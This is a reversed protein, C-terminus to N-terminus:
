KGEIRGFNPTRVQEQAEEVIARIENESYKPLEYM